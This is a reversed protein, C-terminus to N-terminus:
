TLRRVFYENYSFFPCTLLPDYSEVWFMGIRGAKTATNKIHVRKFNNVQILAFYSQLIDSLNESNERRFVQPQMAELLGLAHTFLLLYNLHRLQGIKFQTKGKLIASLLPM